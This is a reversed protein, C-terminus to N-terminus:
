SPMSVRYWLTRGRGCQKCALEVERLDHRARHEVVRLAGDCALCRQSTARIEIISASPVEIPRAPDGGAELRGLKERAEILKAVERDNERRETRPRKKAAV